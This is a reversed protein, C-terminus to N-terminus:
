GAGRMLERIAKIAALYGHTMTTGHDDEGLGHDRLDMAFPDSFRVSDAYARLQAITVYGVIRGCRVCQGGIGGDDEYHRCPCRGGRCLLRRWWPRPDAGM